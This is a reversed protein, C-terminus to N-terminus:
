AALSLRAEVCDILSDLTRFADTTLESDPISISFHQELSLALSMAEISDLGIGLGLLRTRGTVAAVAAASVRLETELIRRIAADIDRRDPRNM